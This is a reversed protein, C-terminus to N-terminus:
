RGFFLLTTLSVAQTRYNQRECKTVWQRVQRLSHSNSVKRSLEMGPGVCQHGKWPYYASSLHIKVKIKIYPSLYTM